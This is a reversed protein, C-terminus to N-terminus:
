VRMHRPSVPKEAMVGLRRIFAPVEELDLFSVSQGSQVHEIRGRWRPEAAPGECWFRIVFACAVPHSPREAVAREERRRQRSVWPGSM